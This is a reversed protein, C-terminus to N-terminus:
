YPPFQLAVPLLKVHEHGWPKSPGVQSSPLLQTKKKKMYSGAKYLTISLVPLVGSLLLVFDVLLVLWGVWGGM